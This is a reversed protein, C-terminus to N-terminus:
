RTFSELTKRPLESKIKRYFSQHYRHCSLLYIKTLKLSFLQTVEKPWAWLCDSGTWKGDLASCRTHYHDCRLGDSCFLDQARKQSETESSCTPGTWWPTRKNILLRVRTTVAVGLSVARRTLVPLKPAQLLLLFKWNPLMNTLGVSLDSPNSM